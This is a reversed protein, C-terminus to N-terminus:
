AQGGEIRSMLRAAEDVRGARLLLASLPEYYVHPAQSLSMARRYYALAEDWLERQASLEGLIRLSEEDDAVGEDRGAMLDFAADSFGKRYLLKGIRARWQPEPYLDFIGLVKEFTKYEGLDAFLDLVSEVTGTIREDSEQPLPETPRGALWQSMVQYTLGEFWHAPKLQEWLPRCEDARNTLWNIICRYATARWHNESEEPVRAFLEQASQYDHGHLAALARVMVVWDQDPMDRTLEGARIFRHANRHAQVALEPGVQSRLLASEAERVQDAALSEQALWFALRLPADNQDPGLDISQAYCRIAEGIDRRQEQVLGKYYWPSYSGAGESSLHSSGSPGLALCHDFAELAREWDRRDHHVMGEALWLDTYDPYLRQAETLVELAAAYEGVQRYCHALNRMLKSFYQAGRAAEPAREYAQQYERLATRHDGLVFYETALNFRAFSDAPHEAVQRSLLELNREDKKKARRVEPLYGYHRISIFSELIIGGHREITEQVQEHIPGEFRHEPKNRFLRPSTHVIRRSPDHSDMLSQVQLMLAAAGQNARLARRLYIPDSLALEEDADLWLIWDGKAHRLSENRAASFDDRWPFHYVKAGHQEAVGVTGDTSGTDVVVVEDVAGAVSELCRGLDQEENRVIMCLSITEPRLAAPDADMFLDGLWVRYLTEELQEAVREWSYMSATRIGEEGLRQRLDADGALRLVAEAMAAPSAPPVLLCNEGNRAYTRVGENDASVVPTGSAMAELCPLSFSEYHSGSVFVDAEAYLQALTDQPPSKYFRCEVGQTQPEAPSVWILECDRGRERLLRVAEFVDALGKFAVDDRGVAMIRLPGGVPRPRPHFLSTDLGNPVVESRRNYLTEVRSALAPSVTLLPAAVQHSLRALERVEPAFRDPEWVYEDGQALFVRTAPWVRELDHNQTWFSSVAVDAGRVAEALLQDPPIQEFEAQLEMWPPPPGYALVRVQHGRRVLWNAQEFFIKMGGTLGTQVALYDLKLSMRRTKANATVWALLDTFSAGSPAGQRLAAFWAQARHDESGDLAGLAGEYDGAMWRAIALAVTTKGDAGTAKAARRLRREAEQHKGQLMLITGFNHLDWWGAEPREALAQFVRAAAALDGNYAAVLGTRRQVAASRGRYKRILYARERQLLVKGLSAASLQVEM